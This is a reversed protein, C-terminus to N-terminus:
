HGRSRHRSAASPTSRQLARAAGHKEEAGAGTRRRRPGNRAHDYPGLVGAPQTQSPAQSRRRGAGPDPTKVANPAVLLVTIGHPREEHALTEVFSNVAAKSASYAGVGRPPVYGTISCRVVIQGTGRQRMGPLVAKTMRVTGADNVEMVTLMQEAETDAIRGGPMIGASHVLLDVPGFTSEARHVLEAAYEANTVDGALGLVGEDGEYSRSLRTATPRLSAREAHASDRCLTPAL